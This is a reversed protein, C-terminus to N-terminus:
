RILRCEERSKERGNQDYSSELITLTDKELIMRTVDMRDLGISPRQTRVKSVLTNLRVTTYWTETVKGHASQSTGPKRREGRELLVEMGVAEGGYGAIDLTMLGPPTKKVTIYVRDANELVSDCHRHDVKFKGTFSKIGAFAPLSLFLLLVAFIKM